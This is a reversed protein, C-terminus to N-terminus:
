RTGYVAVGVKRGDGEADLAFGAHSFGAADEPALEGAFWPVDPETVEAGCAECAAVRVSLGTWGGGGEPLLSFLDNPIGALEEGELEVAGAVSRAVQDLAAAPELDGDHQALLRDAAEDPSIPTPDVDNAAGRSRGPGAFTQVAYVARGRSAMAFGFSDIGRRLINERHGPSQMWGSQFGDVRARDAGGCGECMAINEAILQGRRGGAARFRDRLTRGSPSVHAHYDRRAMDEAHARAAEMLPPSLALPNLGQEARAENVLTLAQRALDQAPSATAFLVLALAAALTRIM